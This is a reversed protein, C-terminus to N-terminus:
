VVLKLTAALRRPRYRVGVDKAGAFRSDPKREACVRLVGRAIGVALPSARATM